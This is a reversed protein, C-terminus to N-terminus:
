AGDQLQLHHLPVDIPTARSFVDCIVTTHQKSVREVVGIYGQLPGATIEVLDGQKVNTAFSIIQSREILKQLRREDEEYLRTLQTSSLASRAAFYEEFPATLGDIQVYVYGPTMPQKRYALGYTTTITQVHLPNAIATIHLLQKLDPQQVLQCLVKWALQKGGSWDSLVYWNPSSMVYAALFNNLKM